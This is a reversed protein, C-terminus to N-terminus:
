SKFVAFAILNCWLSDCPVCVVRRTPSPWPQVCGQHPAPPEGLSGLEKGHGECNSGRSGRGTSCNKAGENGSSGSSMNVDEQLLAPSAKPEVLKKTPNRPGPLCVAYENM